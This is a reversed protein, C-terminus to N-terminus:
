EVNAPRLVLEYRQGRLSSREGVPEGWLLAAGNIVVYHFPRGTAPDNPIPTQTVAALNKPWQGDHEFAWLRLAEVCRLQAVRRQIRAKAAAVAEVSPLLLQALSLVGGGASYYGEQRVRQEAQRLRPAAEPYPLYLWKFTEGWVYDYGDRLHMAVAQLTPMAEVESRSYGQSLLWQKAEPYDKLMFGTLALQRKWHSSAGNAGGLMGGADIFSEVTSEMEAQWEKLPRPREPDRLIPLLQLPMAREQSLAGRMGILPDPLATLSWYLNPAKPHQIFAELQDFMMEGIAMGLLANILTRPKAIDRALALGTQLSHLAQDLHGAAVQMRIRLELARALDRSMQFEEIRFSVIERGRMERLRLAWDCHDRRAAKDLEEFM